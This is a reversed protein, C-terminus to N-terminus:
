TRYEGRYTCSGEVSDVIIREEIRSRTYKRRYYEVWNHVTRKKVGTYGEKDYDVRIHARM